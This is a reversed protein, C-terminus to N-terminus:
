PATKPPKNTADTGPDIDSSATRAKQYEINGAGADAIGPGVYIVALEALAASTDNGFGSLATLKLHKATITEPFHIEQPDWTSSLQGHTVDRWQEGNDSTQLTYERIDGQHERHNQRSMLILGNMAVPQPFHITV